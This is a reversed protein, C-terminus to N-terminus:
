AEPLSFLPNPLKTDALEIMLWYPHIAKSIDSFLNIPLKM